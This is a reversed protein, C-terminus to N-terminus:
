IHKEVISDDKKDTFPRKNKGHSIKMSNFGQVYIGSPTITLRCSPCKPVNNVLVLPQSCFVCPRSSM